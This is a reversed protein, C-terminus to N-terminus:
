VGKIDQYINQEQSITQKREMSALIISVCFIISVYYILPCM